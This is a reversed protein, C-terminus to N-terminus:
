ELVWAAADRALPSETSVDSRLLVEGDPVELPEGSVNVACVITENPGAREYVLTGPPSDRRSFFGGRMAEYERRISIASRILDLTSGDVGRQTTVSAAGWDTPMPLWPTGSTFGFSPPAQNWPIPVRCSDRGIRRRESRFFVPDQRMEDPLDVEELGLEQGQYLCVTGPLALLM